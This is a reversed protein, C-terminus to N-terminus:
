GKMSGEFKQAGEVDALWSFKNRCYVEIKPKYKTEVLSLDDLTGAKVILVGPMAEGTVWCLVGCEPCFNSTVPKGSDGTRSWNKPTGGLSKFAPAPVLLNTSHTSNSTRRCPICHCAAVGVPEGDFSYKLNGCLCGGTTM